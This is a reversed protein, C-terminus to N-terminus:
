RRENLRLFSFANIIEGFKPKNINKMGEYGAYIWILKKGIKKSLYPNKESFHNISDTEFDSIFIILDPLENISKTKERWKSLYEFVESYDTGGSIFFKIKKFEEIDKITDLKEIKEGVQAIYTKMIPTYLKAIKKFSYYIDSYIKQLYDTLFPRMSESIDVAVFIEGPERKYINGPREFSRRKNVKNWTTQKVKISMKKVYRRLINFLDYTRAEDIKQYIEDLKTNRWDSLLEDKLKQQSKEKLKSIISNYFDSSINESDKKQSSNKDKQEQGQNENKSENKNASTEEERQPETIEEDWGHQDLRNTENLEEESIIEKIYIYLDTDILDYIYRYKEGIEKDSELKIKPLGKENTKKNIKDILTEWNRWGNIKTKIFNDIVIDQAYNILKPNYMLNPLRFHKFLYHFMEHYLIGSILELGISLDINGNKIEKILKTFKHPNIYILPLNKIITIAAVPINENYEIDVNKIFEYLDSYKSSIFEGILYNKDKFERINIWESSDFKDNWEFIKLLLDELSKIM